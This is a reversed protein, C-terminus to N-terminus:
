DMGEPAMFVDFFALSGEKDRRILDMLKLNHQMLRQNERRVKCLKERLISVDNTKVQLKRLYNDRSAAIRLIVRKLLKIQEQLQDQDNTQPDHPEPPSRRQFPRSRIAYQRRPPM